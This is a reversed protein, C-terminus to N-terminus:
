DTKPPPVKNFQESQEIADMILDLIESADAEYNLTIPQKFSLELPIGTKKLKLGKKDFARRLGKITVPVIIPRTAKIIHATGKRGKEFPKTTGQPFTIVWGYNLAKHIKEIDNKEVPREIAQGSERWTRKIQIAGTYAFIKPILGSKMTEEAAIYFTNLRPTILYWPWGLKNKGMKRAAFAHYMLIVDSFYTQHNSVFLVNHEPLDDLVELGRITTKNILNYNAYTVVGIVAMLMRRLALYHGFVNRKLLPM